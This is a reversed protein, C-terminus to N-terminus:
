CSFSVHFFQQIEKGPQQINASLFLVHCARCVYSTFWCTSRLTACRASLTTEKWTIVSAYRSLAPFRQRLVVSSYSTILHCYHKNVSSGSITSSIAAAATLVRAGSSKLLIVVRRALRVLCCALGFVNIPHPTLNFGHIKRIILVLILLLKHKTVNRHHCYHHRHWQTRRRRTTTAPLLPSHPPLPLLFLM